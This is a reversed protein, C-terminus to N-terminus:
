GGDRGKWRMNKEKESAVMKLESPIWGEASQCV